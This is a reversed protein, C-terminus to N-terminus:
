GGFSQDTGHSGRQSRTSFSTPFRWSQADFLNGKAVATKVDGMLNRFRGWHMQALRPNHYPKRPQLMMRGLVGAVLCVYFQAFAFDPVQPKGDRDVPIGITKSVTAVWVAAASPANKFTVLGTLNCKFTGVPSGDENVIALVRKFEGGEAVTLQYVTEDTVVSVNIDEQWANTNEFFEHFVSYMAQYIGADTAGPLEVRLQNIFRAYEQTLNPM